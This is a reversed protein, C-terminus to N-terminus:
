SFYKRRRLFPYSFVSLLIVMTGMYFGSSMTESEGFIAYALLIGYVPELNISLVVTYASLEKMIEVIATFAYSTCLLSLLLLWILDNRTLVFFTIIDPQEIFLYFFTIAAFGGTLEYFSIVTPHWKQSINRNLIVFLANLLASILSFIIGKTYQTEYQFILYIGLIIVLGIFVELWLIKRNQLLPELFSTFLTTSAFVGLTVSVNSVKIAQFFTIWHLAVLLGIFSLHLWQRLSIKFSIRRYIIYAGLGAIAFLLRFWVLSIADMSILAGLIATFGLLVVIFHLHLYQGALRLNAM